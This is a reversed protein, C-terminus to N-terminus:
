PKNLPCLMHLVPHDCFMLAAIISVAVTGAVLGIIVHLNMIFRIYGINEDAAHKEFHDGLLRVGCYGYAFAIALQILIGVDHNVSSNALNTPFLIMKGFMIEFGVCMALVGVCVGSIYILLSGGPREKLSILMLIGLFLYCMGVGYELNAAM